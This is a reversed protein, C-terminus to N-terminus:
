YISLVLRGVSVDNFQINNKIETIEEPTYFSLAIMKAM